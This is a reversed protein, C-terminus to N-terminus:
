YSNVNNSKPLEIKFCAGIYQKHNFSIPTNKVSLKGNMHKEIIDKSMYLGIGTGQSQHKTTFYPDFIKELIDDPIGGANDHIYITNTEKSENYSINVYRDKINNSVIADKANNLINLLVQSLESPMGYAMLPTNDQLNSSLEIDYENYTINTISLTKKVIDMINFNIKEKDEHFFGRFDEITQTLFDVYGMINAYSKSIDDNSTVGLQMQLQMGSATTNIASLPQRWQHAINGIMEGVAAFRSQQIMQKDKERAKTSEIIVKQELNENLEQLEKTKNKVILGLNENMSALKIQSNIEQTIDNLTIIVVSEGTEDDLITKIAQILFHHKLGNKKMIVKFHQDQNLIIHDLWSKDNYDKKVIYEDNPINNEFFDCVCKHKTKFEEFSDFKNFFKIFQKNAEIMNVDNNVIIINSQADLIARISREQKKQKSLTENLNLNLNLLKQSDKDVNKAIIYGFILIISIIFLMLYIKLKVNNEKEIKIEDKLKNLDIEWKYLLRGINESIHTFYAPLSKYYKQVDKVADIKYKDRNVLLRNIEKLKISLNVLKPTLGITELSFSEKNTKKYNIVKITNQHDAINLVRSRQIKGGADLVNISDKLTKIDNEIKKIIMDRSEQKTTTTALEHFLARIEIIDYAILEGIYLKAELNKTENNLKNELDTFIKNLVFLSIFGFIFISILLILKKHTTNTKTVKM